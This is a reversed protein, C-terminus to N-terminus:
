FTKKQGDLLAQLEHEFLPSGQKMVDCIAPMAKASISEERHHDYEALFWGLGTSQGNREIKLTMPRTLM